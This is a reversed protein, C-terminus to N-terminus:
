ESSFHFSSIEFFLSWKLLRIFFDYADLVRNKLNDNVGSKFGNKEFWLWIEM